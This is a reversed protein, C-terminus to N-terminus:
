VDDHYDEDVSDTTDVYENVPFTVIVQSHKLDEEHEHRFDLNVFVFGSLVLLSGIIYEVGFHKHNIVLDCILAIPVTLSLGINALLPSTMVVANSLFFDASISLAGNLILMFFLNATIRSLDEMGTFHLAVVV